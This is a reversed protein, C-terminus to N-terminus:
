VLYAVALGLNIMEQNISHNFDIVLPDPEFLTVLPRGYKDLSESILYLTKGAIRNALWEKAAQGPVGTSLEPANIGFLRCSTEFYERFGRDIRLWATDGDTIKIVTAKYHFLPFSM